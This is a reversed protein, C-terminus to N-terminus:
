EEIRYSTTEGEPSMYVIDIPYGVPNYEGFRDANKVLSRLEASLSYIDDELIGHEVPYFANAYFSNGGTNYQLERVKPAIHLAGNQISIRQLFIGLSDVGGVIFFYASQLNGNYSCIAETLVNLVDLYSCKEIKEALYDELNYTKVIEKEQLSFQNAGHTTLVYKEGMFVKQVTRGEEKKLNGLPSCHTSKTDGFALIGYKTLQVGVFSMNKDEKNKRENYSPVEGGVISNQFRNTLHLQYDTGINGYECVETVDQGYQSRSEVYM